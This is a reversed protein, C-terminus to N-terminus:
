SCRLRHLNSETLYKFHDNEFSELKKHSKDKLVELDFADINNLISAWPFVYKTIKYDSSFVILPARVYRGLWITSGHYGVACYCNNYLNFAEAVPTRYDVEVIKYKGSLMDKLKKFGDVGLPDKWQKNPDYQQFQQLNNETTNLIIYDGPTNRHKSYWHNHHGSFSDYNSHNYDLKQNFHQRLKVNYSIPEILKFLYRQRYDISEPDTPKFLQGKPTEWYMNLDVNVKNKIALVHAYCIPSIIDGYGIKGKWNVRINNM